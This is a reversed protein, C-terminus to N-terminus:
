GGRYNAKQYETKQQHLNRCSEKGCRGRLDPDSDTDRNANTRRRKRNILLRDTGASAIQPCGTVPSPVIVGAVVPYRACPDLRGGDAQKPGRAVPSPVVTDVGPIGAIPSRLDAEVTANIVAESVAADTEAAAFPAAASEEVVGGNHMHICGLDGVNVNVLRDDDVIFGMDGEVAAFAADRGARGCFFFGIRAFLMRRRDCCLNPLFVSGALVLGQERRIIVACGGHGGRCFWAYEASAAYYGSFGSSRIM